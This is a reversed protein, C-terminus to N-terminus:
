KCLFHPGHLLKGLKKCFCTCSWCKWHFQFLSIYQDFSILVEYRASATEELSVGNQCWSAAKSMFEWTSGKRGNGLCLRMEYPVHGSVILFAHLCSLWQQRLLMAWLFLHRGPKPYYGKPHPTSYNRAKLFCTGIWRLVIKKSERRRRTRDWFHSKDHSWSVGATFNCKLSHFVLEKRSTTSCSAEKLPKRPYKRLWSYM